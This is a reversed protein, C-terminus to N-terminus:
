SVLVEKKIVEREKLFKWFSHCFAWEGLVGNIPIEEKQCTHLVLEFLSSHSEQSHILVTGGKTLSFAAIIGKEDRVVYYNGSYIEHSLHLGYVELNGLLFLTYDENAKLFVVMEDKSFENVKEVSLM